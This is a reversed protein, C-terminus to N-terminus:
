PLPHPSHTRTCRYVRLLCDPFSHGPWPPPRPSHTCTCRCVILWCHPFSRTGRGQWSTAEAEFLLTPGGSKKGGARSKEQAEKMAAEFGPGDILPKCENM